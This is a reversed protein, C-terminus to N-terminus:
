ISAKMMVLCQSSLGTWLQVGVYFWRSLVLMVTVFHIVVVHQARMYKEPKTHQHFNM